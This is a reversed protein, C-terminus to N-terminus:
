DILYVNFVELYIYLCYLDYAVYIHYSVYIYVNFTDKCIHYIVHATSEIFQIYLLCWIYM